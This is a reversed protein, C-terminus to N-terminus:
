KQIRYFREPAPDVGVEGLKYNDRDNKDGEINSLYYANFAGKDFDFAIALYENAGDLKKLNAGARCKSVSKDSCATLIHGNHAWFIGKTKPSEEFHAMINEAMKVDRYAGNDLNHKEEVIFKLGRILNRLKDKDAESLEINEIAAKREKVIHEFKEISETDSKAM